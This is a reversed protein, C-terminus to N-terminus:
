AMIRGAEFHRCTLGPGEVRMLVDGDCRAAVDHHSPCQHYAGVVVDRVNETERTDVFRVELSTAVPRYRDGTVHAQPHDARTPHYDLAFLLTGPTVLEVRCPFAILDDGCGVCRAIEVAKALHSRSRGGVCQSVASFPEVERAVDPDFSL